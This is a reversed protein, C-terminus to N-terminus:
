QTVDDVFLREVHRSGARRNIARDGFNDHGAMRGLWAARRESQCHTAAPVLAARSQLGAREIKIRLLCSVPPILAPARNNRGVAVNNKIGVRRPLPLSSGAFVM